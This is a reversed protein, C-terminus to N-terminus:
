ADRHEESADPRDFAYVREPMDGNQLEELLARDLSHVEIEGPLIRLSLTGPTLTICNALTAIGLQTTQGTKVRGVTPRYRGNIVIRLVALSSITIEKILWLLFMPIRPVLHTPRGDRDVIGMRQSLIAVLTISAAGLALLLPSYHGSLSLWYIALLVIFSLKRKM